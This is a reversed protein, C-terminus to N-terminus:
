INDVKQLNDEKNEEEDDMYELWTCQHIWADLGKWAPFFEGKMSARKRAKKENNLGKLIDEISHTKLAKYLRPIARTRNHLSRQGEKKPYEKTLLDWPNGEIEPASSEEESFLKELNYTRALIETSTVKIFKLRELKDLDVPYDCKQNNYLYYLYIYENPTLSSKTLDALSITISTKM